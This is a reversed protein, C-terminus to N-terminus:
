LFCFLADVLCCKTIWFHSSRQHKKWLPPMWLGWSRTLIAIHRSTSRWLICRFHNELQSLDFNDEMDKEKNQCHTIWQHFLGQGVQLPQAIWIHKHPRLVVLNLCRLLIFYPKMDHRNQLEFKLWKVRAYWSDIFISHCYLVNDGLSSHLLEAPNRSHKYRYHHQSRYLPESIVQFWHTSM